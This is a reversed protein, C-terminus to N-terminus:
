AVTARGSGGDDVSEGQERDRMLRLVTGSVVFLAIISPIAILGSLLDGYAWIVRVGALAGGLIAVSFLLRYPVRARAGFVYAACQEGYFECTILTSIGFLVSAAAVIPGGAAGLARSFAEATLASSDLGSTYAGSALLVIGTASCIIITDIFVGLMAITGQRIPDKTQASAHAIAAVGTGAENSYVGRAIGFRFAQTVTAGAFGGIGAAPTFANKVVMSLVTPVEEIFYFIAILAGSLYLLGMFPALVEMVRGIQQVGGVVVFGTIVATLGCAVLPAIGLESEVVTAISNAQITTTSTCVRFAQGLAYFVALPKWIERMYYMPGGLYVGDEGRERTHVGLVGEAFMTGGGLLASIWMWFLAGPGGATIATAVGAINGNGVIGGVSTMLAGFPSVDGEAGAESARSGATARIARPLLRVQVARLRVLYFLGVGLVLLMMPYGWLWNSAAKIWDTM